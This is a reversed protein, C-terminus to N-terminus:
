ARRGTKLSTHLRECRFPSFRPVKGNLATSAPLNRHAVLATPRAGLVIEPSPFQLCAIQLIRHTRRTRAPPESPGNGSSPTAVSTSMAKVLKLGGRPLTVGSLDDMEGDSIMAVM